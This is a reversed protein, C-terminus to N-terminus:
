SVNLTTPVAVAAGLGALRQAFDLGAQGHYLCSDIHAGTIPILREAGLVSALAVVMRMAMATGPGRGGDLMAREEGTLALDTV